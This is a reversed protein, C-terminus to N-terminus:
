TRGAYRTVITTRPNASDAHPDLEWTGLYEFRPVQREAGTADKFPYAGIREMLVSMGDGEAQARFGPIGSLFVPESWDLENGSAVVYYTKNGILSAYVRWPKFSVLLGDNLVQSIKLSVVRARRVRAEFEGAKKAAEAQRARVADQQAEYARAKEPDYGLSKQVDPPLAALPLTAIGASHFITVTSPTRSGFTVNSYIVANVTLNTDALATAATLLLLLLTTRM